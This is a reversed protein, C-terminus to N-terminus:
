FLFMKKSWRFKQKNLSIQMNLKQGLFTDGIRLQAGIMFFADLEVLIYIVPRSDWLVIWVIWKQALRTTAGFSNSKQLPIPTCNENKKRLPKNMANGTPLKANWNTRDTDMMDRQKGSNEGRERLKDNMKRRNSHKWVLQKMLLIHNNCAYNRNAAPLYKVRHLYHSLFVAADLFM